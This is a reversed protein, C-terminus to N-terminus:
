VVLMRYLHWTAHGLLPIVFALAFLAPLAGAILLVVVIAGWGFVFVPNRRTAELSTAMAARVTMDRDLLLPFAVCTLALAVAAFGAGLGCGIILMAWGAGTTFVRALFGAHLAATSTGLTLHYVLAAVGIWLLFWLVSLGALKQVAVRRQTPAFAQAADEATAERSRDRARSWAIFWLSIPPGILAFGACIPFVFPLFAQTAWIGAFFLGALPYIAALMLADTRIARCDAHGRALVTWLDRTNLQRIEPLAPAARALKAAGPRAGGAAGAEATALIPRIPNHYAVM